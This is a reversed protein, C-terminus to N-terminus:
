APEGAGATGVSEVWEMGEKTLLAAVADNLAHNLSIRRSLAYRELAARNVATLRVNTQTARGVGGTMQRRGVM